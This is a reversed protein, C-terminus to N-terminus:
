LRCVSKKANLTAIQTQLYSMKSNVWSQATAQTKLAQSLSQQDMRLWGQINAIQKQSDSITKLYGSQITPFKTNRNVGDQAWSIQKTLTTIQTNWDNVKQTAPKWASNARGLDNTAPKLSQQSSNVVSQQSQISSVQSSNCKTLAQASNGALIAITSALTIAVLLRNTKM